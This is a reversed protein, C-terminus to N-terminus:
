QLYKKTILHYFIAVVPISYFFAFLYEENELFAIVAVVFYILGCLLLVSKKKM